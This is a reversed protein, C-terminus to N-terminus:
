IEGPFVKGGKKIAVNEGCFNERAFNERGRTGSVGEGWSSAVGRPLGGLGQCDLVWTWDSEAHCQACFSSPRSYSVGPMAGKGCAVLTQHWMAPQIPVAAGCFILCFGKQLHTTVAKVQPLHANSVRKLHMICWGMAGIPQDDMHFPALAVSSRQCAACTVPM